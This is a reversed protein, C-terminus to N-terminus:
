GLSAGTIINRDLEQATTVDNSVVFAQMPPQSSMIDAIQNGTSQGVINFDPAQTPAATPIDGFSGLAGSVKAKTKSVAKRVSKIIALSQAIAMIITIINQPPGIKSAKSVNEAADVGAGGIAQTGKFTIRKLDMITEKLMLAQKAILLAQGIGSEADAFQSIADVVMLKNKIKQKDMTIEADAVERQRTLNTQRSQETFDDLAIQADIKAQTGADANDIIAQLRVTEQEAELLDIRQLEKLRLEEDQILEANFRKREISLHSESELKSNTLEIQEKDLAVANSKQESMFGEIQAEVAKEENLAQQLVLYDEEKGTLDFQAQAQKIMIAVNELMLKKQEELEEKLKNNAAIRDAINKTDDDRIQRQQEAQRDYQEILGQNAIAARDAEKKLQVNAAINDAIAEVSIESLGKAVQSGIDGVETIAEGFNTVIDSGAQVAETATDSLSEKTEKISQNLRDITETDGSGFFSEEWALQASLLALKIGDWVLKFPTLVLTLIGGMVKGLADFNETSSSVNEYVTVLVNGVETFVQSITGMVINFGDLVKQNNKLAAFLAAFAAIVLGIGMGKIATGLGKFAGSLKGVGKKGQKGVDDLNKNTDKLEENLNEIQEQAKKSKVDLEIEVKKAM